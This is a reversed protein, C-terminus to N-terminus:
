SIIIELIDKHAKLWCPLYIKDDDCYNHPNGPLNMEDINAQAWMIEEECKKKIEDLM